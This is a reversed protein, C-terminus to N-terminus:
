REEPLHDTFRRGGADGRTRELASVRGVVEGIQQAHEYLQRDAKEVFKELSETVRELGNSLASLRGDTRGAVLGVRICGYMFSGLALLKGVITAIETLDM